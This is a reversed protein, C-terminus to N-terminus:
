HDRPPSSEEPVLTLVVKASKGPALKVYESASRHLGSPTEAWLELNGRNLPSVFRFSGDPTVATRTQFQLDGFGWRAHVVLSDPISTGATPTRVKGMVVANVAAASVSTLAATPVQGFLLIRLDDPRGERDNWAVLSEDGDMAQPIVSAGGPLIAVTHGDVTSRLPTAERLQAAPTPPFAMRRWEGSELCGCDMDLARKRRFRLGERTTWGRYRKWHRHDVVEVLARAGELKVLIPASRRRDIVLSHGRLPVRRAGDDSEIVRYDWEVPRGLVQNRGKQLPGVEDWGTVDPPATGRLLTCPVEVPPLPPEDGHLPLAVVVRATQQDGSLIALPAGALVWSFGPQVELDTRPFVALYRRETRGAVAIPEAIDVDAWDGSAATPEARLRVVQGARLGGFVGLRDDRLKIAASVTREPFCAPAEARAPGALIGVVFASTMFALGRRSSQPTVGLCPVAAVVELAM